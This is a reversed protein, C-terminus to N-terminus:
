GSGRVLLLVALLVVYSWLVAADGELIDRGARMWSQVKRGGAALGPGWGDLSPLRLARVLRQRREGGLARFGLAGLLMAAAAASMSLVTPQVELPIQRTYIWASLATLWLAGVGSTWGARSGGPKDGSGWSSDELFHAGALGMGIVGAWRLVAEGTSAAPDLAGLLVRGVTFPVGLMMLAGLASAVRAIPGSRSAALMLVAGACLVSSAATMALAWSSTLGGALLGAGFVSVIWAVGGGGQRPGLALSFGGLILMGAGVVSAAAAASGGVSGLGWALMAMATCAALCGRLVATGSSFGLVVGEGRRVLSTAVRITAAGLLIWARTTSEEPFGAAGLVLLVPSLEVLGPAMPLHAAEAPTRGSRWLWWEILVVLSWTMAVTFLNGALIALIVAAGFLLWASRPAEPEEPGRLRRHLTGVLVLSLSVVLMVQTRDSLAFRLTGAALFDPPWLFVEGTWPTQSVLLLSVVLAALGAATEMLWPGRRGPPRWVTLTISGLLLVLASLIAV